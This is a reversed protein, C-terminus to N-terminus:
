RSSGSKGSPLLSSEESDGKRERSKRTFDFSSLLSHLFSPTFAPPFCTFFSAAVVHPVMVLNNFLLAFCLFAM